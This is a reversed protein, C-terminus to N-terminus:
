AQSRGRRTISFEESKPTGRGTRYHSIEGGERNLFDRESFWERVVAVLRCVGYIIVISLEIGRTFYNRGRTEMTEWM